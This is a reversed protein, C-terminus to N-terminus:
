IGFTTVQSSIDCLINYSIEVDKSIYNLLTERWFFQCKQPQFEVVTLCVSSVAISDGLHVDQLVLSCEITLQGNQFM